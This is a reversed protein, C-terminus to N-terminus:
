SFLYPIRGDGGGGGGAGGAGGASYNKAIFIGGSFEPPM